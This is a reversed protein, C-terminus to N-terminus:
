GCVCASVSVLTCLCLVYMTCTCLDHLLQVICKGRFCVGNGM